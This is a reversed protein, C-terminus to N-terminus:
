THESTLCMGAHLKLSKARRRRIAARYTEEDIDHEFRDPTLGYFDDVENRSTILSAYHRMQVDKKNGMQLEIEAWGKGDKIMMSILTHRAIDQKLKEKPLVKKRTQRYKGGWNRTMFSSFHRYAKLWLRLTPSVEIVRTRRTKSVAKPVRIFKLDSEM